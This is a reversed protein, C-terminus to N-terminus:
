WLWWRGCLAGWQRLSPIGGQSAKHQAPQSAIGQETTRQASKGHGSRRQGASDQWARSQAASRQGAMGQEATRQASRGHGARRNAASAQWAGSPAASHQGAM